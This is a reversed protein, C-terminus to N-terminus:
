FFCIGTKIDLIYYLIHIYTFIYMNITALQNFFVHRELIPTVVKLKKGFIGM